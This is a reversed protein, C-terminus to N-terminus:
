ARATVMPVFGPFDCADHTQEHGALWLDAQASGPEM